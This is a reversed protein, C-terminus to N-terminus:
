DRSCFIPQLAKVNVNSITKSYLFFFYLYLSCDLFWYDIWWEHAFCCSTFLALVFSIVYKVVRDVRAHIDHSHSLLFWWVHNFPSILISRDYLSVYLVHVRTAVCLVHRISLSSLFVLMIYCALPWVWLTPAFLPPISLRCVCLILHCLFHSGYVYVLLLTM